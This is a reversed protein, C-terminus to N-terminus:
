RRLPFKKYYLIHLRFFLHFSLFSFLFFFNSYWNCEKDGQPLTNAIMKLHLGLIRAHVFYLLLFWGLLQNM